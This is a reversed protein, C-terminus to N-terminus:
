SRTPLNLPESAFATMLCARWDPWTLGADGFGGMNERMPSIRHVPPRSGRSGSPVTGAVKASWTLKTKAFTAGVNSDAPEQGSM